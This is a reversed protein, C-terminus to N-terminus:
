ASVPALLTFPAYKAAHRVLCDLSTQEIPLGSLYGLVGDKGVRWASGTRSVYIGPVTPLTVPAAEILDLDWENTRFWDLGLQFGDFSVYQNRIASSEVVGRVVCVGKTGEVLDGVKFEEINM